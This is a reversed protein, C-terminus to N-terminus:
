KEHQQFSWITASKNVNKEFPCDLSVPRSMQINWQLERYQQLFIVYHTIGHWREYPGQWSCRHIWIGEKSKFWLHLLSKNPTACGGISIKKRVDNKLATPPGPWFIWTPSIQFIDNLPFLPKKRFKLILKREFTIANQLERNQYSRKYFVSLIPM